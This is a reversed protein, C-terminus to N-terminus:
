RYTDVKSPANKDYTSSNKVWLKGQRPVITVNVKIMGPVKKMKNSIELMVRTAEERTDFGRPNEGEGGYWENFIGVQVYQVM